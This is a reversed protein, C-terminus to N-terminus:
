WMNMVWLLTKGERGGKTRDPVKTETHWKKGLNVIYEARGSHEKAHLDKNYEEGAKPRTCYKVLSPKRGDSSKLSM